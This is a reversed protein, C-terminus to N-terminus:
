DKQTELHEIECHNTTETFTFQAEAVVMGKNDFIEAKCKYLIRPTETKSFDFCHVSIRYKDCLQRKYRLGDVAQTVIVASDPLKAEFRIYDLAARDMQDFIYGGSYFGYENVEQM